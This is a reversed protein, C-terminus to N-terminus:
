RTTDEEPRPSNEEAGSSPEANLAELCRLEIKAFLDRFAPDTLCQEEITRKAHTVTGHDFGGFANGITVTTLRTHRCLIVMACQRARAYPMSRIRSQLEALEIGFADACIKQVTVIRDANVDSLNCAVPRIGSISDKLIADLSAIATIVQAVANHLSLSLRSEEETRLEIMRRLSERRQKENKDFTAISSSLSNATVRLAAIAQKDMKIAMADSQGTLSRVKDATLRCASLIAPQLSM